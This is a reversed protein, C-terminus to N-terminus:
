KNFFFTLLRKFLDVFWVDKKVSAGSVLATLAYRKCFDIRSNFSYLKLTQDYSDFFKWAKKDDDWGYCVVWHCNPQDGDIYIGDGGLIWATVSVAVPSFQLAQKIAAIKDAVDFQSQFVYEHGFGYKDLWNQGLVLLDNTMPTPTCFEEFTKVMPLVANDILGRDRITEAVTNPDSGPPRVPVLNYIFRESYNAEAGFIKKFLIETANLTGWVGCGDTDWGDGFQPEYTPLFLDWQGNAQLIIRPLSLVSGLIYNKNEIKPAIYGYNKTTM